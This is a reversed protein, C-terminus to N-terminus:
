CRAQKGHWHGHRCKRKQVHHPFQNEECLIYITENEAFKIKESSVFRIRAKPPINPRSCIGIVM